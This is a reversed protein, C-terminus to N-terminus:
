RSGVANWILNAIRPAPLGQIRSLMWEKNIEGGGQSDAVLRVLLKRADFALTIYLTDTGNEDSIALFIGPGESSVSYAMTPATGTGRTALAILLEGIKGLYLNAADLLTFTPPITVARKSRAMKALESLAKQETM